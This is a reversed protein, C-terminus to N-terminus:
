TTFSRWFLWCSDDLLPAFVGDAVSADGDAV